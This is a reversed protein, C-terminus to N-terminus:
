HRMGVGHVARRINELLRRIQSIPKPGYYTDLNVISRFPMRSKPVKHPEALEQEHCGLYQALRRRFPTPEHPMQGLGGDHKAALKTKRRRRQAAMLHFTLATLGGWFGLYLAPFLYDQWAVRSTNGLCYGTFLGLLSGSLAGITVHRLLSSSKNQPRM